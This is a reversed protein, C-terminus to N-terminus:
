YGPNQVLNKNKGLETQMIPFLYNADKFVHQANVNIPVVEYTYTTANVRTVKMAKMTVNQTEHAIKWRRVDWYRHDEYALEVMRENQLVARMEAKTMNPKLGYLGDAGPIIGARKRILKLQDYAAATNDMENSAEAYNLLVEAYRILPLCRETNPGANGATNDEMMKRWWYGTSWAVTRYGDNPAGDYTYIPAKNGTGSSYWLTGNFIFTYNFRPDRDVFPNNPDFGSTPDTIAKGNIMGFAEALNQSPATQTTGNTRSRPLAFGEMTKNPTQMGPLIYETNRRMLFVRSFGYGPATTNDEYLAYQNMDIVAKAADAAKKWRQQDFTPYATIKKLDENEAISGGNFLPSAAYLLVRAKLAMCAGRTIRGYNLADHEVPLDNAIADMEGTIYDVCEEYTNRPMDIQDSAEFVRDGILPIGAFNKLLISYYWARLFRAEAKVQTKLAPSLPANDVNALFVNARRINTWPRWWMYEYPQTQSANMTGNLLFVFPQTAGSLRHVAEDCGEATGASINSAYTYRRYGFSFAIDSYTGILFQITRASDNFTTAANLETNPKVDLLDKKECASLALLATVITISLLKKM